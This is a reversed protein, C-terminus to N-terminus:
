STRHVTYQTNHMTCLAFVLLAYKKDSRTKFQVSTLPDVHSEPFREGLVNIMPELAARAALALSQAALIARAKIAIATFDPLTQTQALPLLGNHRLAHMSQAAAAAVDLPAGKAPVASTPPLPPATKTTLTTTATTATTLAAKAPAAPVLSKAAAPASAPATVPASVPASTLNASFFELQWAKIELAKSSSSSSSSSSSATPPLENIQRKYASQLTRPEEGAPEKRKDGTSAPVIPIKTMDASAFPTFPTYTSNSNTHLQGPPVTTSASAISEDQPIRLLISAPQKVVHFKITSVKEEDFTSMLEGFNDDFFDEEVRCNVTTGQVTGTLVCYALKKPIISGNKDYSITGKSTMKQFENRLTYETSSTDKVKVRVFNNGDKENPDLISYYCSFSSAM